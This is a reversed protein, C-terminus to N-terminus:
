KQSLGRVQVCWCFTFATGSCALSHSLLVPRIAGVWEQGWIYVPYTTLTVGRGCKVGPFPSGTSFHIAPQTPKLAPRSVSALPFISQRQQSDFIPRGSMISLSAYKRQLTTDLLIVSGVVLFLMLLPVDAIWRTQAKRERTSPFLSPQRRPRQSM